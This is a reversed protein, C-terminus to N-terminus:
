QNKFLGDSNAICFKLLKWKKIIGFNVEVWINICAIFLCSSNKKYNHFCKFSFALFYHKSLKQNRNTSALSLNACAHSPALSFNSPSHPTHLFSSIILLFYLPFLPLAHPFSSRSSSLCIFLCSFVFISVEFCRFMLKSYLVFFLIKWKPGKIKMSVFYFCL